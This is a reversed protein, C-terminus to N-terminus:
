NINHSYTVEAQTIPTNDGQFVVLVRFGLQLIHNTAGVQTLHFPEAKQVATSEIATKNKLYYVGNMGTALTPNTPVAVTGSIPNQVFRHHGDENVGINWYHDKNLETEIYTTNQQGPTKNAKVSNTGIPWTANWPM